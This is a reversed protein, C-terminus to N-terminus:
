GNVVRYNGRELPRALDVIQASPPRHGEFWDVIFAGGGVTLALCSAPWLWSRVELPMLGGSPRRWARWAGGLLALAFISTLWYPVFLWLGALEAATIWSAAALALLTLGLRNSPPWLWLWALLVLPLGVQLLLYSTMAPVIEM